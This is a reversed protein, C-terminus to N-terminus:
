AARKTRIPGLVMAEASQKLSALERLTQQLVAAVVSGPEVQRMLTAVEEAAWRLEVTNLNPSENVYTPTDTMTM